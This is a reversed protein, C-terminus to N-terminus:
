VLTGEGEGDTELSEMHISKAKEVSPISGPAMGISLFHNVM